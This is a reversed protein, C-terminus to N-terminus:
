LASGHARAVEDREQGEGGPYIKRYTSEAGESCATCCRRTREGHVEVEHHLRKVGFVNLCWWCTFRTMRASM